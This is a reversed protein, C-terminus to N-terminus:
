CLVSRIADILDRRAAGGFWFILQFVGEEILNHGIWVKQLVYLPVLLRFLEDAEKTLLIERAALFQRTVHVRFLVVAVLDGAAGALLGKGLLPVQFIMPSTVRLSGFKGTVNTSSLIRPQVVQRPVVHQVHVWVFEGTRDAVSGERAFIQQVLMPLTVLLIIEVALFAALVEASNERQLVMLFRM